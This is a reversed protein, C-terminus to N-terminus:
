WETYANQATHMDVWLVICCRCVIWLLYWCNRVISNVAIHLKLGDIKYRLTLQWLLWLMCCAIFQYLHLQSQGGWVAKQNEYISVPHWTYLYKGWLALHETCSLKRSKITCLILCPSLIVCFPLKTNIQPNIIPKVASITPSQKNCSQKCSM